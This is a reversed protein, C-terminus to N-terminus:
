NDGHRGALTHVPMCTIRSTSSVLVPVLGVLAVLLYFIILLNAVMVTSLSLYVQVLM